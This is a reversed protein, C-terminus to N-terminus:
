RNSIVELRQAATTRVRGNAGWLVTQVRYQGSPLGRFTVSTTRPANEGDLSMLSSRYFDPSEAVVEIARNEADPEVTATISVSAPEVALNPAVKMALQEEGELPLVVFMVLAVLARYRRDM